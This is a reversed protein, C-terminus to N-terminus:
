SLLFSTASEFQSGVGGFMLHMVRSCLQTSVGALWRLEGM